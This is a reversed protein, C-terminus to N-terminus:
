RQVAAEVRNRGNRKATLLAEDAANILYEYDPHGEYTAAGASITIRISTDDPLMVTRSEFYARFREAAVLAEELGTEVLVILFEEGGYRFVFDSARAINMLSEAVQRLVADGAAHGYGDNIQKFHDVDILVM